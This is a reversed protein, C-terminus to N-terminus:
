GTLASMMFKWLIDKATHIRCRAAFAADLIVARLGSHILRSIQKEDTFRISRMKFTTCIM